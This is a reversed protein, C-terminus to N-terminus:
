KSFAANVSGDSDRSWNCRIVCSATLLASLCESASLIPTVIRISAVSTLILTTSLPRPNRGDPVACDPNPMSPIRWLAAVMPARNRDFPLEEKAFTVEEEGHPEESGPPLPVEAFAQGPNGLGPADHTGRAFIVEIDPCPDASAQPAVALTTAAGVLTSVIAALRAPIRLSTVGTM